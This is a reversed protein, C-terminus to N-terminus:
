GRQPTRWWFFHAVFAVLAWQVGIHSAATVAMFPGATHAILRVHDTAVLLQAHAVVLVLVLQWTPDYLAVLTVGFPAVMWWADRLHPIHRPIATRIPHEAIEDFLPGLPSPGPKIILATVAPVALALLPLPNLTWLAPWIPAHEKFTAAVTFCILAAPWWGAELLAVGLVNLATTPLDVGVPIVAGPGLVGPLGVVLGAALAAQTVSLGAQHAWWGTGLAILPWSVAWISWWLWLRNKVGRTAGLRWCFPRPVPVGRAAAWYHAADPGLRCQKGSSSEFFFM